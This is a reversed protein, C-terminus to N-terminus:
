RDSFWYDASGDVGCKLDISNTKMRQILSLFYVDKVFTEM